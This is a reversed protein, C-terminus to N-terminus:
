SKTNRHHCHHEYARRGQRESARRYPIYNNLQLGYVLHVWVGCDAQAVGGGGSGVGAGRWPAAEVGSGPQLLVVWERGVLGRARVVLVHEREEVGQLHLHRQVDVRRDGPLGAVALDALGVLLSAVAGVQEFVEFVVGDFDHQVTAIGICHDRMDLRLVINIRNAPHLGRIGSDDLIPLITHHPPPRLIISEGIIHNIACPM